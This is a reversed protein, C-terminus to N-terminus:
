HKLPSFLYLATHLALVRTATHARTSRRRCAASAIRSWRHPAYCLQSGTCAAPAYRSSLRVKRFIKIAAPEQREYRLNLQGAEKRIDPITRVQVCPLPTLARICASMHCCGLACTCAPRVVPIMVELMPLYRLLSAVDAHVHVLWLQELVCVRM